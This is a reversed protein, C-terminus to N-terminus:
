KSEDQMISLSVNQVIEKVFERYELMHPAILHAELDDLSTWREVVTVINSRPEGALTTEMDTTPVYHECGVEAHVKPMLERFAALFEDRRGDSVTVTAIVYVM